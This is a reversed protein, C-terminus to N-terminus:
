VLNTKLCPVEKGCECRHYKIIIEDNIEEGEYEKKIQKRLDSRSLAQADALLDDVNTQDVYPRIVDLKNYGAKLLADSASNFELVFTCYVGKLIFALRRSIDVDPDALYSDFTPHDLDRYQKEREFWYLEKGLELFTSVALNRYSVIKKHREWSSVKELSM